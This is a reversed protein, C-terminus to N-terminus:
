DLDGLDEIVIISNGTAGGSVDTPIDIGQTNFQQVDLDTISTGYDKGKIYNFYKGEKEKFENILGTELNTTIEGTYWGNQGTINYYEGDVNFAQTTFYNESGEYNLTNFTKVSGPSDNLLVTVSPEDYIENSSGPYYTAIKSGVYHEYMSGGKFTFFKNNTSVGAEQMWSKLSVWGGVNESYSVTKPLVPTEKPAYWLKLVVEHADVDLNGSVHQVTGVTYFAHYITDGFTDTGNNSLYTHPVHGLLAPISDVCTGSSCDFRQYYPAVSKFVARGATPDNFDTVEIYLDVSVSDYLAYGLNGVLSTDVLNVGNNIINQGYVDTISMTINKVLHAQGVAAGTSGYFGVDGSDLAINEEWWSFNNDGGVAPNITGKNFQIGRGGNGVKGRVHNWTTSPPIYTSESNDAPVNDISIHYMGKREDWSGIISNINGKLRDHFYDRMGAESIPTLGDASLRMIAGRDKDSFYSRYSDFAFSEPNRSIGFEGAYPIAQGLVNNNATVNSNGDANYLADKNALIKLIKDECLAILDGDATSRSHLKQISGYAPQLDKTIAEAQIFQNLRNVGSSSNFIGSFIIGSWKREEMYQEALPMSVKPGKDILPTNYDDRIRNSEVGNAFSYCNYWDLPNWSGHYYYNDGIPYAPSAEYYLDLGVDEKPETEWIAPNDSTFDSDEAYEVDVIEITRKEGSQRRECNNCNNWHNGDGLVLMHRPDYNTLIQQVGGPLEGPTGNVTPIPPSFRIYARRRHNGCDYYDDGPYKDNDYNELKAQKVNASGDPSGEIEYVNTDGQWRFRTGTRTIHKWFAKEADNTKHDRAPDRDTDDDCLHSYSIMMSDAVVDSSNQGHLGSDFLGIGIPHLGSLKAWNSSGSVGNSAGNSSGFGSGSGSTIYSNSFRGSSNPPNGDVGVGDYPDTNATGTSSWGITGSGTVGLAQGNEPSSLFSAGMVSSEDLFFGRRDATSDSNYWTEKHGSKGAHRAKIRQLEQSQLTFYTPEGQGVLINQELTIDRHIKVFFRGEFEPLQAIVQRALEIKLNPKYELPNASPDVTTFHMDFSFPKTASLRMHNNVMNKGAVTYWRSAHEDLKVRFVLVDPDDGQGFNDGYNDEWLTKPIDVTRAGEKPEGDVGFDCIVSGMSRQQTKVFTPAENNIALIKYRADAKVATDNDHQKKLIIYTEEDVKNRESSPFSLWVNGDEADYFRDMALNYYENSTEKIFYKYHTAWHPASPYSPSQFTGDDLRVNLFNYSTAESKEVQITGSEDTLVPTQRGFEDMYVVGIQYKRISKISKEPKAAVGSITQWPSPSLVGTSSGTTDFDPDYNLPQDGGFLGYRNKRPSLRIMFKPSITKGNASKLDYQQLYNGYILRNGSVEQALAKRPVNDYPRLLQNAPVAAHILESEIKLSGEPHKEFLAKDAESPYQSTLGSPFYKDVPAGVSPDTYKIKGDWGIDAPSNQTGLTTNAVEPGKITKVTYVNTSNSEKYLVDVEVVDLPTKHKMLSSDEHTPNPLFKSVVLFRIQNSMGLNYGKKPFYDFEGPLFAVESFPSYASYEGDEYKWRYAFRPFKFEFLPTKQELKAEFSAPNGTEDVTVIGSSISLIEFQIISGSTFTTMNVIQIRAVVSESFDSASNQYNLELTDGPQWSPTTGSLIIHLVNVGDSEVGATLPEGIDPGAAYTFNYNIIAETEAGGYNGFGRETTQMTLVPPTIPFKKAVTVHEELMRGKNAGMVWLSTCGNVLNANLSGYKCRTINIKKPETNNDTWLLLDELINVGTILYNPDFGLTRGGGVSFKLTCHDPITAPSTLQVMWGSVNGYSAGQVEFPGLVNGTAPDHATFTMGPQIGLLVSSAQGAAVPMFVNNNLAGNIKTTVSHYEQFVVAVTDLDVDYEYIFDVQTSSGELSTAFWIVKNEKEWVISGICKLSENATGSAVIKNGWLTQVTGVASGESTSVEVNLADRYEGNPVLREDLDKNMRGATFQHNIEAM